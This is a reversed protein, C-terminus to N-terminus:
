TKDGDFYEQLYNLFDKEEWFFMDGHNNIMSPLTNSLFQGFRWDSCNEKWVKGIETLFPEIRSADRM